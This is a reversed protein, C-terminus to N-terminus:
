NYSTILNFNCHRDLGFKDALFGRQGLLWRNANEIVQWGRESARIVYEGSDVDGTALAIVLPPYDERASSCLYHAFWELKEKPCKLTTHHGDYGAQAILNADAEAVLVGMALVPLNYQINVNFDHIFIFANTKSTSDSM